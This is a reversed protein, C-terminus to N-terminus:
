ARPPPSLPEFFRVFANPSAAQPPRSFITAVLNIAAPPLLYAVPAIPPHDQIQCCAMSCNVMGTTGPHCKMADGSNSAAHRHHHEPIACHNGTCCSPSAPWASLTLPAYLCLAAFM